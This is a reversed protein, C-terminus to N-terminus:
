DVRYTISSRFLGTDILPTSSGKRAITSEALPPMIGDAIRERIKGVFDQALVEVAVGPDLKGSLVGKAAGQLKIAIESAQQDVWASLWSRQPVKGDSSGFEHVAAIEGVTISGGSHATNGESQHVGVTFTKLSKTKLVSKYLRAYGRDVISVSM